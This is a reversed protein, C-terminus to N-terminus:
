TECNKFYRGLSATITKQLLISLIYKKVIVQLISKKKLFNRCNVCQTYCCLKRNRIAFSKYLHESKAFIPSKICSRLSNRNNAGLNKLSMFYIYRDVYGKELINKWARWIYEFPLMVHVFFFLMEFLVYLCIKMYCNVNICTTCKYKSVNCKQTFAIYCANHFLLCPWPEFTKHMNCHM